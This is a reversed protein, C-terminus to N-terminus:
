IQSYATPTLIFNDGKSVIDESAYKFRYRSRRGHKASLMLSKVMRM